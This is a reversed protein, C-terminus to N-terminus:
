LCYKCTESYVPLTEQNETIADLRTGEELDEALDRAAVRREESTADERSCKRLILLGFITSVFTIVSIVTIFILKFIREFSNEELDIM